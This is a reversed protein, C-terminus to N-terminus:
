FNMAAELGFTRGKRLTGFFGRPAGTEIVAPQGNFTVSAAAPLNRTGAGYRYDFWRTALPVSDENTLNKVFATISFRENRVGLRANLLFTDGVAALNDTQVFKQDEYSFNTNAFINWGGSGIPREYSVNGNVIWPSGLPLKKGKISCLPVAAAPPNRTDFNV